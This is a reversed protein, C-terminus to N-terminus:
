GRGFFVKPAGTVPSAAVVLDAGPYLTQLREASLVEQIKGSAVREGAKLLIATDAWESALNLDHSVLLISKGSRALKRLVKGIAAQHHLDMKSLSEDLLLVKAGQAVVRALHVLQREGGSLTHLDQDRWEWCFCQEMAMRIADLDEAAHYSRFGIATDKLHCGRGLAVAEQATLPFEARLEPGVYCVMQARIGSSYRFLNEGQFLVQGSGQPSHLPLVGAVAKMLTSKGCGNPGLLATIEGKELEFTIEKLIERSGFRYSLGFVGLQSQTV